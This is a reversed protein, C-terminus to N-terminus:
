ASVGHMLFNGMRVARTDGRSEIESMLLAEWGVRFFLTLYKNKLINRMSYEFSSM